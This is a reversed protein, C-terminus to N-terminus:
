ANDANAGAPEPAPAPERRAPAPRPPAKDAAKDAAAKKQREGKALPAIIMTMRRGMSRPPVEVKAIEELDKVIQDFGRFGIDKHAMQRGRFMMTFQVKHGEGLFDRAREMKINLDHEDTGPRLRVEKLESQKSHAKAKAEKKKQQYKWKGYDMIRCVPPRSSPAVEVLDLGAERAMAMARDTDVIGVQENEADILRVPSIRIRENIRLNKTRDDERKIFRRRAITRTEKHQSWSIWTASAAVPTFRM